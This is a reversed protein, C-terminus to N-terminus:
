VSRIVSLFKRQFQLESLNEELNEEFKNRTKLGEKPDPDNLESLQTM